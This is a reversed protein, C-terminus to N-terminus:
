GAADAHFGYLWAQVDSEDDAGILQEEGSVDAGPM